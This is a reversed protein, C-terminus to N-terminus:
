QSFLHSYDAEEALDCHMSQYMIFAILIDSFLKSFFSESHNITIFWCKMTKYFQTVAPLIHTMHVEAVSSPVIKSLMRYDWSQLICFKQNKDCKRGATTYALSFEELFQVYIHKVILV